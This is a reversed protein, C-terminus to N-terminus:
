WAVTWVKWEGNEYWEEFHLGLPITEIKTSNGLINQHLNIIAKINATTASKTENMIQYGSIFKDSQLLTNNANDREFQALSVQKQVEEPALYYLQDVDHANMAQVWADIGTEPDPQPTNKSFLAPDSVCGCVVILVLLGMAICGQM